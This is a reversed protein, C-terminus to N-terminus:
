DEQRRRWRWGVLGLLGTGLLLASAPVPVPHFPDYAANAVMTENGCTGSKIMFDFTTFDLGGYPFVVDLRYQGSGLDVYNLTANGLSAGAQNIKVNIPSIHTGTGGDQSYGSAYIFGAWQNSNVNASTYWSTVPVLTNTVSTHTADIGNMSIGYGWTAGGSLSLAIDAQGANPPVTVGGPAYNTFIQMTVMQTTTNWRVVVKEIDWLTTNSAIINQAVGNDSRVEWTSDFITTEYLNASAGVPALLVLALVAVLWLKFNKM